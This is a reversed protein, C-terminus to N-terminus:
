ITVLNQRVHSVTLNHYTADFLTKSVIHLDFGLIYLLEHCLTVLRSCACCFTHLLLFLTRVYLVNVTRHQLSMSILTLSAHDDMVLARLM